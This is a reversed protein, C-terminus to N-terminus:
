PQLSLPLTLTAVVGVVRASDDVDDVIDLRGGLQEALQLSTYLGLGTGESKTTVFPEFLRQKVKDPLGHGRDRVTVVRAGDKVSAAVFVRPGAGDIRLDHTAALANQILNMMVQLMKDSDVVGVHQLSERDVAVAADDAGVVRIARAVVDVVPQTGRSRAGDSATQLLSQTLTRCRLTEEILLTL